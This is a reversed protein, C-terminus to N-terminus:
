DVGLRQEIVEDSMLQERRGFRGFIIVSRQTSANWVQVQVPRQIPPRPIPL